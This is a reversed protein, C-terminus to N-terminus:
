RVSSCPATSSSVSPAVRVMVVHASRRRSRKPRDGGESLGHAFAALAADSHRESERAVRKAVEPPGPGAGGGGPDRGFSPTRCESTISNGPDILERGEAIVCIQSAVKHVDIGVHDM